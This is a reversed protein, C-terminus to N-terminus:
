GSINGAISTQYQFVTWRVVSFRTPRDFGVINNAAVFLKDSCLKTAGYLNIPNVAKDTSLAIVKRVKCELAAQIVNEAGHVNTKICEMPNYEAAPVQKLAAAHIVFDVGRMAMILRDRDRVDGIFFRMCDQTFEQQMEFQKLEDRSFIIIKKPNHRKLLTRVYQKGFSGTGGTILINADDLM